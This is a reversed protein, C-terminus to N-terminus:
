DALLIGSKVDLRRHVHRGPAVPEIVLHTCSLTSSSTLGGHACPRTSLSAGRTQHDGTGSHNPPCAVAALAVGPNWVLGYGAALNKAYRMSVMADDFLSFYRQGNIVFTTKYIFLAAYIAYLVLVGALIWSRPATQHTDASPAHPMTACTDVPAVMTM